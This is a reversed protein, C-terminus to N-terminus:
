LRQLHKEVVTNVTVLAEEYLGTIHVGLVSHSDWEGIEGHSHFPFLLIMVLSFFESVMHHM